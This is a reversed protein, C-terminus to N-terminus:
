LFQTAAVAHSPIFVRENNSTPDAPFVFFGGTARYANCYGALVEGDRFRVRTRKGMAPSANAPFDNSKRRSANGIFDRVFFLAKLEDIAIQFTGGDNAVLHFDDAKPNFNYVVGKRVTGNAFRAVVKNMM